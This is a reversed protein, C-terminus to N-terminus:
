AARATATISLRPGVCSYWDFWPLAVTAERSRAGAGRGNLQAKYEHELRSMAVMICFSKGQCAEEDM